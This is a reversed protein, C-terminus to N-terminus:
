PLSAVVCFQLNNIELSFIETPPSMGLAAGVGGGVVREGSSWGKWCAHKGDMM